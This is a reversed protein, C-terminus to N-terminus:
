NATDPRKVQVQKQAAEEFKLIEEIDSVQQPEKKRVVDLFEKAKPDPCKLSYRIIERQVIMQAFDGKGYLALIKETAGWEKNKRLEAIILDSIDPINIAPLIGEFIKKRDIQPMDSLIFRVTRLAAYRQNFEIKPNTIVKLVYDPGATPDLLCFGGMLGDLGTLPQNRPSDIIERLFSADEKRGCVGLLCGYLGIQYSPTDKSKIWGILKEPNFSKGASSVDAYPANAFEKYADLSVELNSHDLYSFFFGLREAPKQGAAKVAGVLYEVLGPSDVPLGRYPDIKGNVVEAFLLYDLAGSEAEPIYRPLDIEKKGAIVPNDKVVTIVSMQTQGDPQGPAAGPILRAKSIKGFLVIDAEAVNEVLTKGMNSCFPCAATEFPQVFGFAVIAVVWGALKARRRGSICRMM